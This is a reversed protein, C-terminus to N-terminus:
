LKCDCGYSNQKWKSKSKWGNETQKCPSCSKNQAHAIRDHLKKLFFICKISKECLLKFYKLAIVLRVKDEAM